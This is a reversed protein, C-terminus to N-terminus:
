VADPGREDVIICNTKTVYRMKITEAAELCQKSIEQGYAVYAGRHFTIVDDVALYFNEPENEFIRVNLEYIAILEPTIGCSDINILLVNDNGLALTSM